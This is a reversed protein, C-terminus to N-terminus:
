LLIFNLCNGELDKVIALLLKKDKFPFALQQGVTFMQNPFSMVFEKAM